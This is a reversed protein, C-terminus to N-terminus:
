LQKVIEQHLKEKDESLVRQLISLYSGNYEPLFELKIGNELFDDPNYLDVGGPSNIYKTGHLQKVIAIIRESGKLSDDINLESSRIVDFHIDLEKCVLGLMGSLYDVVPQNLEKLKSIIPTDPNKRIIPFKSAVNSFWSECGDSFSLDKIRIDREGKQLPLTLWEQKGENNLLKNRHVYGRRPFQVCDYIVFLDAAAFLRFYGAYPIFYPQM